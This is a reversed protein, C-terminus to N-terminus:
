TSGLNLAIVIVFFLVIIGIGLVLMWWASALHGDKWLVWLLVAWLLTWLLIMVIGFIRRDSPINQGIATYMLLGAGVCAMLITPWPAGTATVPDMTCTTTTCGSKSALSPSGSM